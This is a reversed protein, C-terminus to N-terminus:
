GAWFSQLARRAAITAPLTTDIEIQKFRRLKLRHLRDPNPYERAQAEYVAVDADSADGGLASRERLRRRIEADPCRCEVVWFESGTALAISAAMERDRGSLFTADLVVNEGQALRQGARLFLEQYVRQRDDPGYQEPPLRCDPPINALEKRVEDTALRIAPLRRALERALVSKGSGSYGVTILLAPAGRREAYSRALDFAAAASDAHQQREEAPIEGEDAALLAIKGRVYARYCQYFGLVSTLGADGSIDVYTDVLVRRLDARGALDLDMALYGIDAAVDGLRFRDNFEICDLIQIGQQVPAYLCINQARLDGHGDRIRCNRMRVLFREAQEALFRRAYGRVATLHELPLMDGVQSTTQEFNEEVNVAIREPAGFATVAPGCPANEHFRALLEAIRRLHGQEITGASLRAPLMDEAPLQRMRVAWELAADCAGVRIRGDQPGIPVVDLYVEPCLRRNLTVERECFYRRLEARSYDLFGLNVPKKIKYVYEGTLFVCSAHTQVVRLSRVPHPYAEPDCLASMLTPLALEVAM